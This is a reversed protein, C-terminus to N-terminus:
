ERPRDATAPPEALNNLVNGKEDGKTATITVSSQQNTDGSALRAVTEHSRENMALAAVREVLVDHKLKALTGTSGGFRERVIDLLRQKKTKPDSIIREIEDLPLDRLPRPDAEVQKAKRPREKGDALTEIAEIFEADSMRTLRGLLASLQRLMGVLHENKGLPPGITREVSSLIVRLAPILVASPHDKSPRVHAPEASSLCNSPPFMAHTSRQELSKEDSSGMSPNENDTNKEANVM